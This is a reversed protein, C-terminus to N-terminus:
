AKASAASPSRFSALVKGAQSVFRVNFASQAPLAARDILGFARPYTIVAASMMGRGPDETAVKVVLLGGQMCVETLRVRYGASPCMGRHVAVLAHSAFDIPPSYEKLGYADTFSHEDLFLAHLPREPETYGRAASLVYPRIDM